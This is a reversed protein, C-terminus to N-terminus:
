AVGVLDTPMEVRFTVYHLDASEEGTDGGAQGTGADRHWDALNRFPQGVKGTKYHVRKMEDAFRPHNVPVTKYSGASSALLIPCGMRYHQWGDPGVPFAPDARRSRQRDLIPVGALNCVGVREERDVSLLIYNGPDVSGKLNTVSAGHKVLAPFNCFFESGGAM